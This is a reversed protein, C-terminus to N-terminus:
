LFYGATGLIFWKRIETKKLYRVFITRRDGNLSSEKMREPYDPELNNTLIPVGFCVLVVSGCSWCNPTLLVLLQTHPAPRDNHLEWM